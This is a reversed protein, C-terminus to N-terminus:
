KKAAASMAEELAVIARADQLAIACHAPGVSAIHIFTADSAFRLVESDQKKDHRQPAGLQQTCAASIRACDTGPCGDGGCSVLAQALQGRFVNLGIRDTRTRIGCLEVDLPAKPRWMVTGAASMALADPDTLGPDAPMMAYTADDCCVSGLAFTARGARDIPSAPNDKGGCAMVVLVGLALCCKLMGPEVVLVPRHRTAAPLVCEVPHGSTCSTKNLYTAM